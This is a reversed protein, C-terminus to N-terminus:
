RMLAVHIHMDCNLSLISLWGRRVSMVVCFPSIWLKSNLTVFCDVQLMASRMHLKTHHEDYASHKERKLRALQVITHAIM